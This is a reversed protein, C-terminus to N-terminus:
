RTQGLGQGGLDEGRQVLLGDADGARAREPADNGRWRSAGGAADGLLQALDAGLTISESTLQFFPQGCVRKGLDPPVEWRGASPACRHGADPDPGRHLDEGDDPVAASEGRGRM